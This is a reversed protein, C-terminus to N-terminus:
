FMASVAFALTPRHTLGSLARRSITALCWHDSLL